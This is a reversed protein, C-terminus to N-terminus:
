FGWLKFGHFADFIIMASLVTFTIVIIITSEKTSVGTFPAVMNEQM